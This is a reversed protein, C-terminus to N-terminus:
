LLARIVNPCSDLAVNIKEKQEKNGIYFCPWLFFLVILCYTFYEGWEWDYLHIIDGRAIYLIIGYVAVLGM